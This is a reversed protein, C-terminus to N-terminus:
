LTVSFKDQGVLRKIENMLVQSPDVFLDEGVLIQVSKYSETNMRIYVPTKGPYHLLKERLKKIRNEKIGVLDVRISKVAKYVEDIRKIDDAIINTVGDRFGVRGMVIVVEGEMLIDAVNSYLSPFVVSEVDGLMDEIKVIAMRENTRRTTTLKIADIIGIIKVAQGETLVGLDKTTYNAFEKTEVKYQALPHGSIYFGLIEKEYSLIQNKPWEEIDPLTKIDNQFGGGSGVDMNFFSFQGSAREKQLKGGIELTKSVIDMLQSRRAKFCDLSGSKILSEIVKRNVLRLDVRECLDYLSEFPGEKKRNEVISEIATQGVNKVALLGYRITKSDIISFEEVSKNVDPPLVTIGIHKCEKVYEVVKDTNDKECTLVACMFEVPYNAKLYATQYSILAYAASHSKNFGYGSFYDIM